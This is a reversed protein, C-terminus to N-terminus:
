LELYVTLLKSQQKKVTNPKQISLGAKLEQHSESFVRSCTLTIEVREPLLFRHEESCSFLLSIRIQTGLIHSCQAEKRLWNKIDSSYM